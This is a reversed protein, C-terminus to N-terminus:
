SNCTENQQSTIQNTEKDAMTRAMEVDIIITRGTQRIADRFKGSAKIRKATSASSNFTRAIGAIGYDYVRTPKQPQVAKPTAKNIIDILEGVTLDIIRTNASIEM